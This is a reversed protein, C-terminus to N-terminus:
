SPQDRRRPGGPRLQLSATDRNAGNPTTGTLPITNPALGRTPLSDMAAATPTSIMPMEDM